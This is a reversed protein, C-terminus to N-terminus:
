CSVIVVINSFMFTHAVVVESLFAAAVATSDDEDGDHDDGLSVSMSTPEGEGCADSSVQLILQNKVMLLVVAVVWCYRAHSITWCTIGWSAFM